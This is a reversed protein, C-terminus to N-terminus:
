TEEDKEDYFEVPKASSLTIQSVNSIQQNKRKCLIFMSILIGILIVGWLVLFKVDM